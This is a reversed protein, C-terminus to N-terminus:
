GFLKFDDDKKPRAWRDRVEVAKVEDFCASMMMVADNKDPSRAIRKKIEDKKELTYGKSGVSPTNFTYNFILGLKNCKDVYTELECLSKDPLRFDPRAALWAHERISGYVETIQSGSEIYQKNLYDIGNLFELDFNTGIKFSNM